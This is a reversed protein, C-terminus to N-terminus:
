KELWYDGLILADIDLNAFAELADEPSEVMPAGRRNFSTNVLVRRGTERYFADLINGLVSAESEIAQIRATRDVHLTAGFESSLTEPVVPAYVMTGSLPVTSRLEDSLRKHIVPALPMFEDRCKVARKVRSVAAPCTPDCLVSRNGLARPGFESRGHLVGVIKGAELAHAACAATSGYDCKKPEQGSNFIARYIRRDDYELGFFTNSV